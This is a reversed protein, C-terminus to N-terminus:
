SCFAPAESSKPSEQIIEKLAHIAESDTNTAYSELLLSIENKM